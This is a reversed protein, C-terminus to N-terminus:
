VNKFVAEAREFEGRNLCDVGILWYDYVLALGEKGRNEEIAKLINEEGSIFVGISKDKDGLMNYAM